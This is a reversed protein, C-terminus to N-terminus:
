YTLGRLQAFSTVNGTQADIIAPSDPANAAVRDCCDVGINFRAPIDWAFAARTQTITPYLTLM